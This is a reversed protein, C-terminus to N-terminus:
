GFDARGLCSSSNDAALRNTTAPLEQAICATPVVVTARRRRAGLFSRGFEFRRKCVWKRWLRREVDRSTLFERFSSRGTRGITKRSFNFATDSGCLREVRKELNYTLTTKGVGHPGIIQYVGHQRILTEALGDLAKEGLGAFALRGPTVFKTAFPNSIRDDIMRIGGM